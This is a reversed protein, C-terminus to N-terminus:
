NQHKKWWLRKQNKMNTKWNHLRVDASYVLQCVNSTLTHTIEEKKFIIMSYFHNKYVPITKFKKIIYM